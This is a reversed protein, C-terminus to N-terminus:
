ARATRQNAAFERLMRVNLLEVMNFVDETSLETELQRYTALEADLVAAIQASCFSAGIESRGSMIMQAQLRVPIELRPRGVLFGAHLFLAARQLHAISRWDRLARVDLPEGGPERLDVFAQLMDLAPPGLALVARYHSFALEIVGGSADSEGIAALARRAHRDAVLAPLERLEVVRGRDKGGLNTTEVKLV